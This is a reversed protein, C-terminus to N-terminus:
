STPLDHTRKRLSSSMIPRDRRAELALAQANMAVDLAGNGAGLVFLTAVLLSLSPAVIPLALVARVAKGETRGVLLDVARRELGIEKVLGAVDASAAAREQGRPPSHAPRELTSAVTDM